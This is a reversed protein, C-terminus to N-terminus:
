TSWRSSGSTGRSEFLLDTPGSPLGSIRWVCSSAGAEGARATARKTAPRARAASSTWADQAGLDREHKARAFCADAAIRRSSRSEDRACALGARGMLQADTRPLPLAGLPHPRGGGVSARAEAAACSHWSTGAKRAERPAGRRSKLSRDPPPLLDGVGLRARPAPDRSRENGRPKARHSSPRNAPRSRGADLAAEDIVVGPDVGCRALGAFRPACRLPSAPTGM